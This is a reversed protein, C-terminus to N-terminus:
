AMCRGRSILSFLVVVIYDASKIGALKKDIIKDPRTPDQNLLECITAYLGPEEDRLTEPHKLFHKLVFPGSSMLILLQMIMDLLHPDGEKMARFVPGGEMVFDQLRRKFGVTMGTRIVLSFMMPFLM